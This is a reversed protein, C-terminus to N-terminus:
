VRCIEKQCVTKIDNLGFLFRCETKMFVNNPRTTYFRCTSEGHGLKHNNLRYFSMNELQHFKTTTQCGINYVFYYNTPLEMELGYDRPVVYQFTPTYQRSFIPSTLSIIGHACVLFNFPMVIQTM